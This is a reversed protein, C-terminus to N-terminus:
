VAALRLAAAIRQGESRRTAFDHAEGEEDLVALRGEPSVTFGELGLEALLEGVRESITTAAIRLDEARAQCAQHEAEAAEAAERAARVDDSLRAARFTAKAQEVALELADVEEP